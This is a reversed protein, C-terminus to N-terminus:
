REPTFTHGRLGSERPLTGKLRYGEVSLESAAALREYVPRSQWYAYEEDKAAAFSTFLRVQGRTHSSEDMRLM